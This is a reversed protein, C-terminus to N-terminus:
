TPADRGWSALDSPYHEFERLSSDDLGLQVVCGAAEVAWYGFFCKVRLHSDHWYAKSMGKYWHALYESLGELSQSETDAAVARLLPRFVRNAPDDGDSERGLVRLILPDDGMNEGLLDFLRERRPGDLHLCRALSSWWLSFLYADFIQPDLSEEAHPCSTFFFFAEVAEIFHKRVQEFPHGASYALLTMEIGRTYVTHALRRRHQESTDSADRKAKFRELAASNYVLYSELESPDILSVRANRIMPNVPRSGPIPLM